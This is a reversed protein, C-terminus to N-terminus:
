GPRWACDADLPWTANDYRGVYRGAVQLWRWARWACAARQASGADLRALRDLRTVVLVDGPQLVRMVKALELRDTKAGSATESFM